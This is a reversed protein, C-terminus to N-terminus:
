TSSATVGHARPQLGMHELSCGYTSSATVRYAAAQQKEDKRKADWELKAVRRM